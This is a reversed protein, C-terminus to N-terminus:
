RSGLLRLLAPTLLTGARPDGVSHICHPTPLQSDIFLGTVPMLAMGSHYPCCEPFGASASYRRLPACPPQCGPEM